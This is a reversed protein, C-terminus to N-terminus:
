NAFGAINTSTVTLSPQGRSLRNRRNYTLSVHQATFKEIQIKLSVGLVTPNAGAIM